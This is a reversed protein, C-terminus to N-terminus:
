SYSQIDQAIDTQQMCTSCHITIIKRQRSSEEAEAPSLKRLLNPNTEIRLYLSLHNQNVLQAQKEYYQRIANQMKKSDDRYNLLLEEDEPSPNEVDVQSKYNDCREVLTSAKKRLVFLEELEPCKCQKNQGELYALFESKKM